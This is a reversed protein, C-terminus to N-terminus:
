LPRAARRGPGAAAAPAGLDSRDAEEAPPPPDYTGASLQGLTVEISRRGGKRLVGIAVRTGPPHSGVIRPLAERRGVPTGDVSVILDGARLGSRAAPSGAEVETVWAGRSADLGIRRATPADLRGVMVGLMGRDVRGKALLQPLVDKIDDVPIAFGLGRGRPHIATNMGVVRGLRDFLPGGSNGPNISADTQLFDDYPGVGIARDKASVIGMTVTCGLGYPNGIAVVPEGVLLAASDGLPAFPLDKAGRIELVAVDLWPDRGKVTATLERDDSLKVYVTSAGDVVHANTVVIGSPDIIFGSGLGQQALSPAVEDPSPAPDGPTPPARPGRPTAPPAAGFSRVATIDVVAPRVKAVIV